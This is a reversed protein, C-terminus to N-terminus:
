NKLLVMSERASRLALQRHERSDLESFPIKTYPVLNPPDFMGLRFRATFLRKVAQDIIREAVLHSKVSEVLSDYQEGCSLDTGAKVALASGHISDAAFHHNDWLDSIAGCDSVVYGDFHWADRLTSQLLFANACAPIGNVANYSCMVSDAKGQIIAARFAPLYTSELDHPSIFADFAHRLLKPGSHVAFHKPTAIARLYRPDNGQLGTVYAIAFQATLFPDEGYTEQGREWRPDRFININPAWITLGDFKVPEGDKVTEQYKVRAEDGIASATRHLLDTDWSAGVGIAQPFIRAKGAFGVGHLGESWWHYEPIGLRPIGKPNNILQSVKEELTMRSVLDDVRSQIPEGPDKYVPRVTVGGPTQAV